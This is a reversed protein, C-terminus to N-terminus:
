SCYDDNGDKAYLSFSVFEQIGMIQGYNRMYLHHSESWRTVEDGVASSSRKRASVLVGLMGVILRLGAASLASAPSRRLRLEAALVRRFSVRETPWVCIITAMNGAIRYAEALVAGPDQHIHLLNSVIVLDAISEALGSSAADAQIARTVRGQSLARDLMRASIDVGIVTWGRNTLASSSLGTGCGLDIAIYRPALADFIRANVENTVPSDWIRDYIRAYWDWFVLRVQTM